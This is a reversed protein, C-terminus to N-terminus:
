GDRGGGRQEQQTVAEEVESSVFAVDGKHERSAHLGRPLQPHNAPNRIDETGCSRLSYSSCLTSYSKSTPKGTGISLGLLCAESVRCLVCARCVCPLPVHSLTHVRVFFLPFLYTFHTLVFLLLLLISLLM